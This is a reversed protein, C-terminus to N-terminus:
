CRISRALLIVERRERVAEKYASWWAQAVQLRLLSQRLLM